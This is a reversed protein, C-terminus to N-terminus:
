DDVVAGLRIRQPRQGPCSIGATAVVELAPDAIDRNVIRQIHPAVPRQPRPHADGIQQSRTLTDHLGASRQRQGYRAIVVNRAEGITTEGEAPALCRVSRESGKDSQAHAVLKFPSPSVRQRAIGATPQSQFCQARRAGPGDPRGCSADNILQRGPQSSRSEVADACVSRSSWLSLM